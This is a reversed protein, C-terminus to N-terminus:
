NRAISTAAEGRRLPKGVECMDVIHFDILDGFTQLRSVSSKNPALGQDVRTETQRTRLHSAPYRVYMESGYRGKLIIEVRYGGSPLKTISAM